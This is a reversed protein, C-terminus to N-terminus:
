HQIGAGAGGGGRGRLVGGGCAAVREGWAAAAHGCVGRGPVTGVAGVGGPKVAALVTAIKGDAAGMGGMGWALWCGAFVALTFLVRESGGLWLALPWAAFFAPITLANAIRRQRYDQLACPLLWFVLLSPLLSILM